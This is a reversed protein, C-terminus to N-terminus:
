LVYLCLTFSICMYCTDQSYADSCYSSLLTSEHGHNCEQLCYTCFCSIMMCMLIICM